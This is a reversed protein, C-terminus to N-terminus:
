EAAEEKKVAKKRPAAKKVEAEGEAEPAKKARPKKEKPAEETKSAAAAPKAAKQELKEEVLEIIAMEAGDNSRMGLRIVRTYGGNRKEYRKAIDSFLKELLESDNVLEAALRRNQLTDKKARTILKEAFPRLAKAKHVTTKVNEYKFLAKVLNRMLAKRHSTNRSLKKVKDGHKM